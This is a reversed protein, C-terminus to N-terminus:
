HQVFVNKEQERKKGRGAQRGGGGFGGWESREGERNGRGLPYGLGSKVKLLEPDM